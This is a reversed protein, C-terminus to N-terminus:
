GARVQDVDIGLTVADNAAAQATNILDRQAGFVVARDVALSGLALVILVAAPMLMLVSGRQGRRRDTVPTSRAWAKESRTSSREIDVPSPSATESAGWSRCRSPLYRTAPKTNSSRAACSTQTTTEFRSGTPIEAWGRCPRTPRPHQPGNPPTETPPKSTPGGRKERRPKPPSSPM